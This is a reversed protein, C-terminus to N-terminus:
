GQGGALTVMRLVFDNPETGISTEGRIPYESGYRVFEVHGDMFLSNSGGPLHNTQIVGSVDDDNGGGTRMEARGGWADWMVALTSQGMSAGAPNNIDTIFFREVGEKLRIYSEPLDPNGMNPAVNTARISKIEQGGRNLLSMTIDESWTPAYV